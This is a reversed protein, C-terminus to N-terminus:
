SDFDKGMRYDKATIPKGGGMAPYTMSIIAPSSGYTGPLYSYDFLFTSDERCGDLRIGLFLYTPLRKLPKNHTGLDGITSLLKM